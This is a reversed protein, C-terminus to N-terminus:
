IIKLDIQPPATAKLSLKGLHVLRHCNPCLVAINDPRYGKDPNKRHRDCYARDWGCVGCRKNDIQYRAAFFDALKGGGEALRMCHHQNCYRDYVQKGKWDGKKRQWRSCGEVECRQRTYAKNGKIPKRGAGM